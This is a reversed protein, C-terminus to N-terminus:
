PGSATFDGRPLSFHSESRACLFTQVKVNSTFLQADLRSKLNHSNRDSVIEVDDRRPTKPRLRCPRFQFSTIMVLNFKLPLDAQEKRHRSARPFVIRRTPSQRPSQLSPPCDRHLLIARVPANSRPQFARGRRYQQNEDTALSAAAWM